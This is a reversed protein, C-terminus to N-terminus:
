PSDTAQIGLTELPYGRGLHTMDRWFVMRPPSSTADIVVEIRAAPGGKDFYGVVQARYVSGKACVYPFIQKMEDLTVIAKSYLWTEYNFIEDAQNPDTPRESVIRNVIETIDPAATKAPTATTPTASKSTSTKSTGTNKGSPQSSGDPNTPSASDAETSEEDSGLVGTLVATLVARSALNVNVRGVTAKESGVTCNDLLKPLFTSSLVPADPFPTELIVDRSEGKIRARVRVGVLDLLSKPARSLSRDLDPECGALSRGASTDEKAVDRGQRWAIIFTAWEAGLAAELEDYLKKRDDSTGAEKGLDIKAQGDSRRSAEQSHLTLYAAWGSDMSGDFSGAITTMTGGSEARDILYNRNTDMGFLLSPTVGRVLLLEEITDPPGNKTAYAPALSAYSEIEAGYDRVEDDLDVWDLIADAVDETMGPLAMLMKRGADSGGPVTQEAELLMNLNLRASEDELGYRIGALRGDQDMAPAVITFRGVGHAGGEYIVGVGRFQSSNDYWGGSQQQMKADQALFLRAMEVGSDALARAQTQLVAVEAGEREAMMLESFTLAGLALLTIIVLVVVLVM